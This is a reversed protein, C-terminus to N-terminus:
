AIEKQAVFFAQSLSVQDGDIEILGNAKLQGLYNDLTGITFHTLELLVQKSLEGDDFVSQLVKAAGQKFKPLWLALIEKPETPLNQYDGANKMGETTITIENGSITVWELKTLQGLYNDLTGATYGALTSLRAKSISKPYFMACYQLMKIVGQKPQADTSNAIPTKPITDLLKPPTDQTLKPLSINFNIPNILPITRLVDETKNKISSLSNILKVYDTQIEKIKNKYIAEIQESENRLQLYKSKWEDKLKWIYDDAKKNDILSTSQTRTTEKLKVKLDIIEKKMLETESLESDILQPIDAFENTIEKIAKPNKEQIKFTKGFDFDILKTKNAVAKIKLVKTPTKGGITIGQSSVFFHNNEGLQRIESEREKGLGLNYCAAKVDNDFTCNGIFRIKLQRVVNKSFDAIAQTGCVLGIGHKRGRKAIRIMAKLSEEKGTGKEPAFEHAEDVFVLLPRKMLKAYKMLSNLFISGIHTAIDPFESLDLIADVSKEILKKALKDVYVDNTNLEIDAKVKDTSKGVLLFVFNDKLSAYEGELEIIIRQCLTDTKEILTTMGHSKGSGSDGEWLARNKILQRVSTEIPKGTEVDHAFVFQEKM